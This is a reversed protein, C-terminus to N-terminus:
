GAFREVTARLLASRKRLERSAKLALVRYRFADKGREAAIRSARFAAIRLATTSILKIKNM